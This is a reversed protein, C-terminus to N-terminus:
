ERTFFLLTLHGKYGLFLFFIESYKCAVLGFCDNDAIFITFRWVRQFWFLRAELRCFLGYKKPIKPSHLRFPPSRSARTARSRPANFIGGTRMSNNLSKRGWVCGWHGGLWLTLFVTTIVARQPGFVELTKSFNSTQSKLFFPFVCILIWTGESHFILRHLTREFRQPSSNKRGEVADFLMVIQTSQISISNQYRITSKFCSGPSLLVSITIYLIEEFNFEVKPVIPLAVASLIVALTTPLRLSESKIVHLILKFMSDHLSNSCM